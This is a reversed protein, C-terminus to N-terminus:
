EKRLRNLTQRTVGIYSAIHDLMINREFVDPFYEELEELREQATKTLLSLTRHYNACYADEAMVRAFQQWRVSSSYLKELDEKAICMLSTDLLVEFTLDSPQNKIFSVYDVMCVNILMRYEISDNNLCYFGWTFDKGNETLKYSRVAGETIFCLGKENKTTHYIIEGKKYFAPKFLENLENWEKDTLQFFHDIYERLKNM